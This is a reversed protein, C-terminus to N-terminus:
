RAGDPIPVLGHVAELFFPPVSQLGGVSRVAVRGRGLFHRDRHGGPQGQCLDAVPKLVPPLPVFVRFHHVAGTLMLM